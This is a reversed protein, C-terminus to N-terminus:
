RRATAAHSLPRAIRERVPAVPLGTARREAEPLVDLSPWLGTELARAYPEAYGARRLSAAAAPADYVLRRTELVLSSDVTRLLGYSTRPDGDNAPMGIVGPNFWTRGDIRRCFPLGCHGAVVLDVGASDLEEALIAAQSAFVWRATEHVGGHVVLVDIGAYRFRRTKPLGAMWLRNAAGVRRSAYEFWSKALANCASAEDFNCGCDDAEAALSEECNGAVVHVGWERVLTATEDPEACYAVVDGTCVIRSPPIALQEAEAKLAVTAALNSYPGGFVLVPEDGRFEIAATM